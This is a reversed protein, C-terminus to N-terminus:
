FDSALGNVEWDGFRVPELGGRGGTEDPRCNAADSIGRRAEAEALARAAADTRKNVAAEDPEPLSNPDPAVMTGGGKCAIRTPRQTDLGSEPEDADRYSLIIPAGTM